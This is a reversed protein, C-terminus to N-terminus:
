AKQKVGELRLNDKLAGLENNFIDFDSMNLETTYKKLRDHKLKDAFTSMQIEIREKPLEQWEEVASLLREMQSDPLHQGLQLGVHTPLLKRAEETLNANPSLSLYNLLFEPRMVYPTGNARVLDATYSLIKIEKTLWWTALGYGDYKAVEHNIKRQAYVAYALLADNQALAANKDPDRNQLLGALEKVGDRAVGKELEDRSLFSLGFYKVLFAQLQAQGEANRSSLLLFDVFTGLYRGWSRAKGISKTYFYARILIRQSQSAISSTIFQERAAYHNKFEQNVANLHTYVEEVVPETLILQAGAERAVALLNTLTRSEANLYYESLAKVIIDAGVFLRFKGTMGNFYELLQPSHKLSILLLSTRSLKKQFLFQAESPSYFFGRLVNLSVGYLKPSVTEADLCKMLEAEVVQEQTSISELRKDLFAALVLGQEFFHQYIVKMAIDAILGSDGDAGQERASDELLDRVSKTLEIDEASEEAIELRMEYPLCFADQAKYYRVRPTEAGRGCLMDLRRDLNPVIMNQAGPLADEIKKKLAGRSLLINKDPDTDRLAWYIMADAVPEVLSERGHRDGVEFKLFTYVTPDSTFGIQGAENAAKEQSLEAIERAFVERFLRRSDDTENILHVLSVKERIRVTLGLSDTLREEIIDRTPISVNTWYTIAKPNRGVERLRNVTREIKKEAGSEKSIQVYHENRQQYIGVLMGDAGGDKRGGLSEFGDGHRVTLLRSILSEMGFGDITGILYDVLKESIEPKKPATM